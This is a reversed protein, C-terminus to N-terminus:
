FNKIPKYEWNENLMKALSFMIRLCSNENPFTEMVKLRRRFEKFAREIVNTSRIKEWHHYPFQYFALLQELDKEILEVISPLRQQWRNKFEQFRERAEAQSTAYFLQKAEAPVLGRLSRPCKGVINRIKHVICRQIMVGPLLSGLASLLGANGDVTVLKLQDASLGRKLLQSLLQEWSVTSERGGLLFGLFEKKGDASIGIACLLAEKSIWHRKVKLNIADLFLYRISPSIPRHLWTEYEEQLVKNCQSVTTASYSRGWIAKTIKKVKRTSIGNIFLAAIARTIKTERRKWRSFLQPIFRGKRARPIAINEIMGLRTEFDRYRVGNRSDNRDESRQFPAAGIFKDFEDQITNIITIRAIDRLQQELMDFFEEGSPIAKDTTKFINESNNEPNDNLQFAVNEM